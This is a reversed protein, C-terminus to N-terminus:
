DYLLSYTASNIRKLLRRVRTSRLLRNRKTRGGEPKAPEQLTVRDAISLDDSRWPLEAALNPLKNGMHHALYDTTSLRWYGARDLNAEFVPSYLPDYFNEPQLDFPLAARIAQRTTTFQFDQASAFARVSGRQVLTDEREALRTDYKERTMGLSVAHATIFHDPILNGHQVTLTPDDAIGAYTSACYQQARDATPLTTVQGVEPFTELIRLSEDLWGPLFYVDSDTFSVIEGPACALLFELAGIKRLNYASLILYQIKGAEKADALYTQVADCSGNDFVMLDFPKQTNAHLSDVCRQLVQLSESWYGDLVPIHVITTITIRQPNNSQEIWKLPNQGVRPM